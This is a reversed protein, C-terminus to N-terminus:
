GSILGEGTVPMIDHEWGQLEMETEPHLELIPLGKDPSPSFLDHNGMYKTRLLDAWLGEENHYL